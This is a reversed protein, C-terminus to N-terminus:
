TAPAEILEALRVCVDPERPRKDYGSRQLKQTIVKHSCQIVKGMGHAAEAISRRQLPPLFDTFLFEELICIKKAYEEQIEINETLAKQLLTRTNCTALFVSRSCLVSIEELLEFYNIKQM